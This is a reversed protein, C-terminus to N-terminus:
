RPVYQEELAALDPRIRLRDTESMREFFLIGDLHDYEHQIIRAMLEHFEATREHGDLDTFAVRVSEPRRIDARIGPLSLCGEEMEVIRGFPEIRPDLFVVADDASGTESAVFLRLGEGVQPAALGVGHAEVMADIMGDVFARLDAPSRGSAEARRQLVPDPYYVIDMTSSM